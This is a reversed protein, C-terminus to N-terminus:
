SVGWIRSSLVRSAQLLRSSARNVELASFGVYRGTATQSCKTSCTNCSVAGSPFDDLRVTGGAFLDIRQLQSEQTITTPDLAATYLTRPM